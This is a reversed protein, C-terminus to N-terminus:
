NACVCNPTNSEDHFNTWSIKTQEGVTPAHELPLYQATTDEFYLMDFDLAEPSKQIIDELHQIYERLKM